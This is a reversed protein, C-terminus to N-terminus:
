VGATVREVYLADVKTYGGKDTRIVVIPHVTGFGHRDVRETAHVTGYRPAGTRVGRWTVKEGPQFKSADVLRTLLDIVDPLSVDMDGYSDLGDVIPREWDADAVTTLSIDGNHIQLEVMYGANRNAATINANIM